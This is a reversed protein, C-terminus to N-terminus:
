HALTSPRHSRVRSAHRDAGTITAVDEVGVGLSGPLIIQPLRGHVELTYASMLFSICAYQDDETISRTVHSVCSSNHAVSDSEGVGVCVCVCRNICWVVGILVCLVGCLVGCWLPDIM